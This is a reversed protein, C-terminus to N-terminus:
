LIIFVGLLYFVYFMKVISSFELSGEINASVVGGTHCSFSQTELGQLEPLSPGTQFGPRRVGLQRPLRPRASGPLMIDLQFFSLSSKILREVDDTMLSIGILVLVGGQM